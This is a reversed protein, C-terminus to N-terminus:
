TLVKFSTNPLQMDSPGILLIKDTFLCLREKTHLTFSDENRSDSIVHVLHLYQYLILHQLKLYIELFHLINICLYNKWTQTTPNQFLIKLFYKTTRM